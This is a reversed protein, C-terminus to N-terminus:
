QLLKRFAVGHDEGGKALDAGGQTARAKGGLFCTFPLLADKGEQKAVLEEKSPTPM